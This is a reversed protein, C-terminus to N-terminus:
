KLKTLSGHLSQYKSVSDVTYEVEVQKNDLANKLMNTQFSGYKSQYSCVLSVAHGVTTNVKHHTTHYQEGM